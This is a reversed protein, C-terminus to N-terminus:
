LRYAIVALGLSEDYFKDSFMKFDDHRLTHTLMSNVVFVSNQCDHKLIQMKKRNFLTNLKYKKKKGESVAQFVCLFLM